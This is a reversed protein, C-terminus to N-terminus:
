KRRKLFLGGLGLLAVTMPEPIQHVIVTDVVTGGEDVIQIIADGIGECHFIFGDFIVTGLPIIATTTLWIGVVSGDVGPPLPIGAEVAGFGHEVTVGDDPPEIVAAGSGLAISGNALNVVLGFYGEGDGAVIDSDTWIDLILEQSPELFILSDVPEPNGNVSIQLMASAMSAMGLVMLLVLLKKM